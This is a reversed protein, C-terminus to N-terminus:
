ELKFAEKTALCTVTSPVLGNHPNPRGRDLPEAHAGSGREVKSYVWVMPVEPGVTVVESPSVTKNRHPM